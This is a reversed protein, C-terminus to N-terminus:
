GFTGANRRAELEDDEVLYAKEIVTRGEIEKTVGIDDQQPIM